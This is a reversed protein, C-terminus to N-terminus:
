RASRCHAQGNRPDCTQCVRGRTERMLTAAKTVIIAREAFTTHRWSEFCTEATKLAKELQAASLEEFTELTKGNFPNVSQYAKAKVKATSKTTTKKPTPPPTALTTTM